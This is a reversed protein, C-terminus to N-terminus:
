PTKQKRQCNLQHPCKGYSGKASNCNHCLIQFGKPYKNRALWRYLGGSKSTEIRHKNGGGGIHDICLFEYTNEGCCSCQPEKGQCYHSLVNLRTKRFYGRYYSRDNLRKRYEKIKEPNRKRWVKDYRERHKRNKEVWSSFYNPHKKLWKKQYDRKQQKDM